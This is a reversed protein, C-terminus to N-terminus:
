ELVTGTIINKIPKSYNLLSLNKGQKLNFSELIKSSPILTKVLKKSTNSM